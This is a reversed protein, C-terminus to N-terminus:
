GIVRAPIHPAPPETCTIARSGSVPMRAPPESGRASPIATPRYRPGPPSLIFFENNFESLFSAAVTADSLNELNLGEAIHGVTRVLCRAVVVRLGATAAPEILYSRTPALGDGTRPGM